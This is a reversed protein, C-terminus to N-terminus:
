SGCGQVTDQGTFERMWLYSLITGVETQPVEIEVDGNAKRVRYEEVKRLLSFSGCSRSLGAVWPRSKALLAKWEPSDEERPPGKMWNELDTRAYSPLKPVACKGWALMRTTPTICASAAAPWTAAVLALAYALAKMAIFNCEFPPSAIFKRAGRTRPWETSVRFATKIRWADQTRGFM